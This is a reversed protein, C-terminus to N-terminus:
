NLTSVYLSVAKIELESLKSAIFHMVANDNTRERQGFSKLQSEIYKPVQGALRPLEDTGLGREGHCSACPPVGSEENGRHFVFHGVAALEADRAERAKTPKREFYVGLALMEESTLGEAMSAMTDSKRQGSQFDALQRAIYRHHQGALRPYLASASEGDVGHCLSCRGASIQEARALNVEPLDAAGAAFSMCCALGAPFVTKKWIKM